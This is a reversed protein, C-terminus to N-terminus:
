RGGYARIAECVYAATGDAHRDINNRFREDAAYMQGLGMLIEDTCPYYNATIHRQLQRVLRQAGASDPAEASKMCVAFAAMIQDMGGALDSWKQESYDKTREAYDRYADTGGWKEKAETQYKDFARNEFTNM